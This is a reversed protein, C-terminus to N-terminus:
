SPTGSEHGDVTRDIGEAVALHAAGRLEIRSGLGSVQVTVPLEMEELTRRIGDLLVAHGGVGGGLIVLGPDLVAVLAGALKGLERGYEDVLARAAPDGAEALAFLEKARDLLAGSPVTAGARELLGAAGLRAELAKRDVPRDGTWPYPLLAVEGAAGNAGPVLRGGIVLGAGIGLGVQLYVFSDRGVGAGEHLEAVAGCNVNNEARVCVDPPLGLAAVAAEVEQHAARDGPARPVVAGSVAVVVARLPGSGVRRWLVDEIMRRPGDSSQECRGDELVTGDLAVARYTAFLAGQDVALVWGAAPGLGYLVATRGTAGAVAGGPEALGASELEAMATSATPKSLGCDAALQPRTATGRAALARFVGRASDSLM